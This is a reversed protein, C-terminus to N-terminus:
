GGALSVRLCPPARASSRNRILRATLEAHCFQTASTTIPATYVPFPVGSCDTFQPQIEEAPDTSERTSSVADDHLGQGPDEHSTDVECVQQYHVFLAVASPVCMCVGMSLSFLMLFRNRYWPTTGRYDRDGNAQAPSRRLWNPLHRSQGEPTEATARVVNHANTFTYYNM